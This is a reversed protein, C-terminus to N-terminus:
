IGIQDKILPEIETLTFPKKIFVACSHQIKFVADHVIEDEAYGSMFIAKIDPHIKAMTEIMEPGGGNPMVIDSIVLDIASPNISFRKVAKKPDSEEITSYGLETVIATVIQRTDENDDVILITKEIRPPNPKKTQQGRLQENGRRLAKLEAILNKKSKQEDKM